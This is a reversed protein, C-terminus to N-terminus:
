RTWRSRLSPLWPLRLHPQCPLQLLLKRPAQAVRHSASGVNALRLGYWPRSLNKDRKQFAMSRWLETQLILLKYAGSLSWFRMCLCRIVMQISQTFSHSLLFTADTLLVNRNGDNIVGEVTVARRDLLPALKSAVARPLHGVQARAINKVQIANSSYVTLLAKWHYAAYWSYRDYQNQPERVLLVEEGPGVLGIHSELISNWYCTLPAMGKYYQIGVVNTKLSCYLEDRAEEEQVEEEISEQANHQSSGPTHQTHTQSSHHLGAQAASRKRQTPNTSSLPATARASAPIDAPDIRRM